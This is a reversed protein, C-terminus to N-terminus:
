QNQKGDGTTETGKDPTTQEPHDHKQNNENKEKQLAKPKAKDTIKREEGKLLRKINERHKYFAFGAAIFAYVSYPLPNGLLVMFIPMSGAGLLSGLSSIKTTLIVIIWIVLGLLAARWDLVLMAGFSTAIGKGGTFNLFVSYNHGMLAAFGTAAQLWLAMNGSLSGPALNPLHGAIMVPIVAKLVDGAFVLAGWAPGLARVANATGINGSGVKRIDVGKVAKGIALGFPISGLLYGAAIMLFFWLM